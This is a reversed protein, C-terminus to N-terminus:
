TNFVRFLCVKLFSVGNFQESIGLIEVHVLTSGAEGAFTHKERISKFANKMELLQHYMICM